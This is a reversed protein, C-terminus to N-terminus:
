PPEMQKIVITIIERASSAEAIQEILRVVAKRSDTVSDVTRGEGLIVCGETDTPRNGAHIRVGSFNPVDLLLPLKKQFKPSWNYIIRYFGAPIATEGPIKKERVIDELTYCFWTGDLYLDGHTCKDTSPLRRLELEM